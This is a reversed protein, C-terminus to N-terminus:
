TSLRRSWAPSLTGTAHVRQASTETNLYHGYGDPARKIIYQTGGAEIIKRATLPKQDTSFWGDGRHRLPFPDPTWGNDSLTYSLLSGDSQPELRAIFNFAAYEGAIAALERESIPVVPPVPALLPIPFAAIRGNEALARLLVRQGIVIA